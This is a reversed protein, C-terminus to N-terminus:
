KESIGQEVTMDHVYAYKSQDAAPNKIEYRKVRLLVKTKPDHTYGEIQDYFLKWDSDVYTKLGADNYKVEKVLLCTQKAVGTCEQTKTSIDLFIIEGESQYKAEPTITGTFRVPAQNAQQIVLVPSESNPNEIEFTVTNSFLAGAFQEQKALEPSCGIMTSMGTGFKLQNGSLTYSSNQLNCGTNVHLSGEKFQASIPKQTNTPTHHWTYNELTKGKNVATQVVKSSSHLVETTTQCAVLAFPLLAVALFKFKM